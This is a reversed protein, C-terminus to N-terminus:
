HKAPLSDVSVMPKVNGRHCTVCGVHDLKETKVKDIYKTNIGNVMRIMQRAINKQPKADSAFDFDMKGEANLNGAHCEGCKVGLAASFNKMTKILDDHSINKPLVKLNKPKEPDEPKMKGTSNVILASSVLVVIAVFKVLPSAKM